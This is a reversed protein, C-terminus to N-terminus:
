WTSLYIAKVPRIDTSASEDNFSELIYEPRKQDLDHPLCFFMMLVVLYTKAMEIDNLDEWHYIGISGQSYSLAHCQRSFHVNGM